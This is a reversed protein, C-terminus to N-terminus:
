RHTSGQLANGIQAASADIQHGPVTITLRRDREILWRVNVITMGVVAGNDDIRIAHGEPTGYTKASGAGSSATLYLVDAVDDYAANEFALQDITVTV